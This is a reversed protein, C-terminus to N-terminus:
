EEEPDRAGPLLFDAPEFAMPVERLVAKEVDMLLQDDGNAGINAVAIMAAPAQVPDPGRALLIALATAAMSATGLVAVWGWLSVGQTQTRQRIDTRQRAWFAEDREAEARVTRAWADLGRTPQGPEEHGTM